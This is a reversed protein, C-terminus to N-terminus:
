SSIWGGCDLAEMWLIGQLAMKLAWSRDLLPVLSANDRDELRSEHSTLALVGSMLCLFVCVIRGRAMEGDGKSEGDELELEM